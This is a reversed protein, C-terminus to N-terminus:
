SAATSETGMHIAYMHHTVSPFSDVFSTIPAGGGTVIGAGGHIFHDSLEELTMLNAIGEYKRKRSIELKPSLSSKVMRLVRTKQDLDIDTPIDHIDLAICYKTFNERNSIIESINNLAVFIYFAQSPKFSQLLVHHQRTEIIFKTYDINRESSYPYPKSFQFIIIPGKILLNAVEDTRSVPIITVNTKYRRKISFSIDILINAETMIASDMRKVDTIYVFKFTNSTLEFIGEHAM